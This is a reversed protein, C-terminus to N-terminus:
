GDDNGKVTFSGPMVERYEAVSSSSVSFLRFRVEQSVHGDDALVAVKRNYVLEWPVRKPGYFDKENMTLETKQDDAWFLRILWNRNRRAM